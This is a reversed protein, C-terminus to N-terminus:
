LHRWTRRAVVHKVAGHSVNFRSALQRTSEGAMSRRRIEIVISETFVSKPHHAGRRTLVPVSARLAASVIPAEYATRQRGKRSRDAMNELQTGLFLHGPNCCLRVDCQHCVYLGDPIPGNAIEWAVRHARRAPRGGVIGYGSQNTAALWLWCKSSDGRAVKSWFEDSTM